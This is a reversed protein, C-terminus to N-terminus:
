AHAVANSVPTIMARRSAKTLKLPDNGIADHDYAMAHQHHGRSQAKHPEVTFSKSQQQLTACSQWGTGVSLALALLAIFAHRLSIMNSCAYCLLEIM